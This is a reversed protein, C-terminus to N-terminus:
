FPLDDDCFCCDFSFDKTDHPSYSLRVLCCGFTVRMLHDAGVGYNFLNPRWSVLECFFEPTIYITVLDYKRQSVGQFFQRFKNFDHM